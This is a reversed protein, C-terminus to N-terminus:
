IKKEYISELVSARKWFAQSNKVIFDSDLETKLESSDAWLQIARKVAKPGELFDGRCKLCQLLIIHIQIQFSYWYVTSHIQIRM